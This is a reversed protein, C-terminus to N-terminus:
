LASEASIEGVRQESKRSGGTKNRGRLFGGGERYAIAIPVKM